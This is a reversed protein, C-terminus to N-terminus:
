DRGELRGNRDLSNQLKCNDGFAKTTFVEILPVINTNQM